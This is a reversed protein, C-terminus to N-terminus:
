LGYSELLRLWVESMTPFAPVAHWLRDLTVEGVVAITASQLMEGVEPGVFTAGTIVRREPDVVLKAVGSYGDARLAAGAVSGIEVSVTEVPGGAARAQAETLGVSAVQPDTFVVQTVATNEATADLHTYRAGIGETDGKVTALVVDACIRAQYKGMHTLKARDTCDGVAYLWGGDVATVRTADDVALADGDSLGVTDLGLAATGPRRGAAVAVHEATVTSGDDLTATVRSRGQHEERSVATISTGLRLDVGEERLAAAVHEGAEPEMAPLLRDSHQVLTVRSGLRNWATALECGVAGGGLLVLSEPVTTAGTAERNTWAGVDHIGDIPPLVPTSGPAVVVAREAAVSTTTGDDHVVEVTKEGTLRGRGRLLVAGTSAVWDAQSSDDYGHVFEDRRELVAAVDLQGSAAQRSGNVRRAAARLEPAVLLTKSPICAWYSCEGGAREAEVVAVTLGGARVRGAVNEGAPGAGLVVVDVRHDATTM